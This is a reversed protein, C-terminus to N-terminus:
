VFQAALNLAAVLSFLALVAITLVQFVSNATETHTNM